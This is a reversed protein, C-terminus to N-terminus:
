FCPRLEHSLSRVVQSKSLCQNPYGDSTNEFTNRNWNQTTIAVFCFSYESDADNSGIDMSQMAPLFEFEAM